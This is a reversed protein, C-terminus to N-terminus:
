PEFRIPLAEVDSAELLAAARAEVAQIMEGAQPAVLAVSLAHDRFVPLGSFVEHLRAFYQFAAEPDVYGLFAFRADDLQFIALSGSCAQRSIRVFQRLVTPDIEDPGALDVLAYWTAADGSAPEILKQANIKYAEPRFADIFMDKTAIEYALNALLSGTTVHLISGGVEIRSGIQLRARNRSVDDVVIGAGTVDEITWDTDAGHVRAHVASVGLEDIV